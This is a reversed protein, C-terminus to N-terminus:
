AARIGKKLQFERVAEPTFRFERKSIWVCEIEGQRRLDYVKSIKVGLMNAVQDAHMLLSPVQMVRELEERVVQRVLEAISNELASM